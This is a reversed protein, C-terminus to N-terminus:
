FCYIGLLNFILIHVRRAVYRPLLEPTSFHKDFGVLMVAETAKDTIPLSFFIYMLFLLAGDYLWRALRTGHRDSLINDDGINEKATTYKRQARFRNSSVHV